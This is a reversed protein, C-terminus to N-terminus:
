RRVTRERLQELMTKWASTPGSSGQPQATWQADATELDLEEIDADALKTITHETIGIVLAQGGARVIAVSSGKGVPRRALLEVTAGTPSRRPSAGMLGRKKLVVSVAWMLGIVVGLSLTLRLFLEFTSAQSM